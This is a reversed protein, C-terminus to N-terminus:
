YELGEIWKGIIKLAKPSFTEKIQAYEAVSGTTCTQFLHNLNPLKHITVKTNGSESLVHQISSLNETAPVQCDKDGNLALVPCKVQQLVPVPNFRIFYQYWKLGFIGLVKKIQRDKDQQTSKPMQANVSKTIEKILAEKRLLTDDIHVILSDYKSYIYLLANRQRESINTFQFNAKRQLYMLSDGKIGPAALLIIFAVENNRAAVMPAITGGDSHGAIGIQQPNIEKRTKLYNFAAEADTSFDYTTSTDFIGTSGYGGRDDYRLVAIGRRTLYDAIVLFPKHGLIEEDRNQLGSGSVLIVAPCQGKQKKPLTLTGALTVGPAAPNDFMVEEEIYPYPKKSKQQGFLPLLAMIALFVTLAKKTKQM